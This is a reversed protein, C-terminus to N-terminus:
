WAKVTTTWFRPAGSYFATGAPTLTVSRSNRYFLQIDLEQELASILRSLAPQAMFLEEAAQTFNLRQALIMFCELQYFTLARGTREDRAGSFGPGNKARQGGPISQYPACQHYTMIAFFVINTVSSNIATRYQQLENKRRLKTLSSLLCVAKKRIKDLIRRIEQPPKRRKRWKSPMYANGPDRGNLCPMKCNSLNFISNRNCNCAPGGSSPLAPWLLSSSGIFIRPRDAPVRFPALSERQLSARIPAWSHPASISNILTCWNSILCQVPQLAQTILRKEPRPFPHM